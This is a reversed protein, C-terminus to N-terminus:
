LTYGARKADAITVSGHDSTCVFVYLASLDKDPWEHWVASYCGVMGEIYDIVAQRNM